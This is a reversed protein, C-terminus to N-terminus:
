TTRTGIYKLFPSTICQGPSIHSAPIRELLALRGEKLAEVALESCFWKNDKPEDRRSMFRLISGFDYKKGVQSLLFAEAEVVDFPMKIAFADVPTGKTHKEKFDKSHSVGGVHWAEVVSGDNLEIAIHSYKSRTQWRIAKSIWSRGRYALLQM